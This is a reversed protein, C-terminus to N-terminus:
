VFVAKVADFLGPRGCERVAHVSINGFYKWTELM